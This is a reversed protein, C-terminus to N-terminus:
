LDEGRAFKGAIPTFLRHGTLENVGVYIDIGFVDRLQNYTMVQELDGAAVLRGQKLLCFREGYAAALNLDHVAALVSMGTRDREAQILDYLGVQHRIDLHSAPEDLLLVQPQQALAKAVVVRKFEGGSLESMRRTSLHEISTARMADAAIARDETTDLALAGRHPARGMLVVEEVTFPFALEFRQPVVAVRRALERRSWTDIPKGQIEIRGAEARLVGALLQILTSKGSGNPGMLCWFSGAEITLAVDTLVKRQGYSFRLGKTELAPAPKDAKRTSV